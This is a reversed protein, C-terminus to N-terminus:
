FQFRQTKKAFLQTEPGIMAYAIGIAIIALTGIAIVKAVKLNVSKSM